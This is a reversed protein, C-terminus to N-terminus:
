CGYYELLAAATKPGVIGDVAGCAIIGSDADANENCYQQFAKVATQTHPGDKGDIAGPDFGLATLRQQVGKILVSKNALDL